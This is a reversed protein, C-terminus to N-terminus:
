TTKLDDLGRRLLRDSPLRERDGRLLLDLDLSLLDLDRSLLLDGSLNLRELDRSLRLYQLLGSLYQLKILRHMLLDRYRLRNIVDEFDQEPIGQCEGDSFKISNNYIPKGSFGLIITSYM